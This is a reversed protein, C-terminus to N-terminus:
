FRQAVSGKLGRFYRGWRNLSRKISGQLRDVLLGMRQQLYRVVVLNSIGEARQYGPM